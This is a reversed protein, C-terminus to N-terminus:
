GATEENELLRRMEDFRAREADGVEPYRLGM